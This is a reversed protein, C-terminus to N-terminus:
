SLIEFRVRPPKPSVPKVGESEIVVFLESPAPNNQFVGRLNDEEFTEAEQREILVRGLDLADEWSIEEGLGPCSYIWVESGVLDFPYTRSIWPRNEYIGCCGEKLFICHNGERRMCWGLTYRHGNGDDITEPYPEAIDDWSRIPFSLIRRIELPSVMVLNSDEELVRCCTNCKLCRFGIARIRRAIISVQIKM